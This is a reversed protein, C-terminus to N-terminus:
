APRMGRLAADLESQATALDSLDLRLCPGQHFLRVCEAVGRRWEDQVNNRREEVVLLKAAPLSSALETAKHAILHQQDPNVGSRRARVVPEFIWFDSVVWLDWALPVHPAALIAALSELQQRSTAVADM